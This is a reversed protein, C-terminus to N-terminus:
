GQLWKSFGSLGTSYKSADELSFGRGGNKEDALLLNFQELAQQKAAADAAAQSQAQRNEMLTQALNDNYERTRWADSNLQGALSMMQSLSNQQASAARSANESDVQLKASQEDMDYGALLQALQMRLSDRAEAGQLGYVGAMSTNEDLAAAQKEALATQASRGREGADAIDQAVATNADTGKAIIDAQAQDLGLAKLVDANQQSANANADSMISVADDTDQKVDGRADAYTDRIAQADETRVRDALQAYMAQVKADNESFRSKAAERMPDWSPASLETYGGGGQSGMMAQAQALADQFSPLSTEPMQVMQKDRPGQRVNKHMFSKGAGAPRQRTGEVYGPVRRNLEVARQRDGGTQRTRRDDLFRSNDYALEDSSQGVLFNKLFENFDFAM